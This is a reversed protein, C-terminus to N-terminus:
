PVTELSVVRLWRWGRTVLESAVECCVLAYGAEGPRYCIAPLHTHRYAAVPLAEWDIHCGECCPLDPFDRCTLPQYLTDPM